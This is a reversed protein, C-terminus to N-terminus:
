PSAAKLVAILPGISLVAPLSGLGILLMAEGGSVVGSVAPGPRGRESSWWSAGTTGTVALGAVAALVWLATGVPRLFAPALGATVVVLV